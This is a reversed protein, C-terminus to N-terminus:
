AWMNKVYGFLISKTKPPVLMHKCSLITFWGLQNDLFRICQNPLFKIKVFNNM